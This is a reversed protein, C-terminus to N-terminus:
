LQIRDWAPKLEPEKIGKELKPEVAAAIIDQDDQVNQSCSRVHTDHPHRIFINWDADADATWRM